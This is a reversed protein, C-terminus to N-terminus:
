RIWVCKGGFHLGIMGSEVPTKIKHRDIETKKCNGFINPYITLRM